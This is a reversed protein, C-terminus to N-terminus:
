TFKLQVCMFICMKLHSPNIKLSLIKSPTLTVISSASNPSEAFVASKISNKETKPQSNNQQRYLNNLTEM